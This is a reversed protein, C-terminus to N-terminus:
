PRWERRYSPHGAYPLTLLRLIKRAEGALLGGLGPTPDMNVCWDVIQRKVEVEALARKKSLSLYPLCPYNSETSAVLEWWGFDPEDPHKAIETEDETLRARLFTVLDNM